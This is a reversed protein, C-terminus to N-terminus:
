WATYSTVKRTALPKMSFAGYQQCRCLTWHVLSTNNSYLPETTITSNCLVAIYIM